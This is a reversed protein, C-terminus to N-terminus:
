EDTDEAKLFDQAIIKIEDIKVKLEEDDISEDIIDANEIIKSLNERNQKTQKYLGLKREYFFLKSSARKLTDRVGQRSINLIEATESLSLDDNVYLQIVKRQADNLLSGYFDYLLSLEINNSM